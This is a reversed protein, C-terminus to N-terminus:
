EETEPWQALGALELARVILRAVGPLDVNRWNARDDNQILDRVTPMTGEVWMHCHGCDAEAAPQCCGPCFPTDIGVLEAPLGMERRLAEAMGLPTAEETGRHAEEISPHDWRWGIAKAAAATGEANRVARMEGLIDGVDVGGLDRHGTVRSYVALLDQDNM